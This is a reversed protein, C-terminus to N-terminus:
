FNQMAILQQPTVIGQLFPNPVAGALQGFPTALGAMQQNMLMNNRQLNLQQM